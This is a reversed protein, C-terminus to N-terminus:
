GAKKKWRKAVMKAPIKIEAEMALFSKWFGPAWKDQDSL